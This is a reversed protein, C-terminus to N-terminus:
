YVHVMGYAFVWCLIYTFLGGFFGNTLLARRSTFYRDYQTGAKAILLLWLGFAAIFYFAFGLIGTLGLVGAGMGSIVATWTRCYEVVAANHRIAGENFVRVESPFSSKEVVSPKSRQM